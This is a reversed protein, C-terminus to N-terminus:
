LDCVKNTLSFPRFAQQSFFLIIYMMGCISWSGLILIVRLIYPTVEWRTKEEFKKADNAAQDVADFVAQDQPRPMELEAQHDVKVAHLYIGAVVMSGMQVVASLM